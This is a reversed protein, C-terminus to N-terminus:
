QIKRAQNLLNMLDATTNLTDSSQKVVFRCTDFGARDPTTIATFKMDSFGHGSYSASM